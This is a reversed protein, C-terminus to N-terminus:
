MGFCANRFLIQIANKFRTEVFVMAHSEFTLLPDTYSWLHDPPVPLHGSQIQLCRKHEVTVEGLDNDRQQSTGFCRHAATCFMETKISPRQFWLAGEM